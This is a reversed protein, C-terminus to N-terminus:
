TREAAHNLDNCLLITRNKPIPRYLRRYVQIRGTQAHTLFGREYEVLSFGAFFFLAAVVAGRKFLFVLLCLLTATAAALIYILSTESKSETDARAETSSIARIVVAKCISVVGRICSVTTGYM